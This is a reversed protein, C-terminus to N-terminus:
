FQSHSRYSAALAAPDVLTLDIVSETSLAEDVRRQRERRAPNYHTNYYVTEADYAEVIESLQDVPDSRRIVLESGHRRYQNRLHRLGAYLFTRQRDGISELVSDDVIYVPLTTDDATAAALGRNDPIRLDRQYWFVNM